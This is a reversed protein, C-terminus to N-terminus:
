KWNILDFRRKGGLYFEFVISKNLINKSTTADGLNKVAARGAILQKKARYYDIHANLVAM